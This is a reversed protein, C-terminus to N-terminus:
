WFPLDTFKSRTTRAASVRKVCMTLIRLLIQRLNSHPKYLYNIILVYLNTRYGRFYLIDFGYSRNM